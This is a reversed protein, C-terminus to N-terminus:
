LSLIVLIFFYHTSHQSPFEMFFCHHMTHCLMAIKMDQTTINGIIQAITVNLINIQNCMSHSGM